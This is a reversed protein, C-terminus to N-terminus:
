EICYSEGWQGRSEMDKINQLAFQRLEKVNRKTPDNKQAKSLSVRKKEKQERVKHENMCWNCECTFDWHNILAKREAETLSKVEAQVYSIFIEEGVEIDRIVQVHGHDTLKTHIYEANADCAHNFRSITDFLREGYKNLKLINSLSLILLVEDTSDKSRGGMVEEYERLISKVKSLRPFQFLEEKREKSM